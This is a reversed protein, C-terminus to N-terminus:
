DKEWPIEEKLYSWDDRKIWFLYENEEYEDEDYFYDDEEHACIYRYDIGRSTLWLSFYAASKKKCLKLQVEEAEKIFKIKEDFNEM